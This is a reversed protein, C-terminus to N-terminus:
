NRKKSVKDVGINWWIRSVMSSSEWNENKEDREQRNKIGINRQKGEKWGM